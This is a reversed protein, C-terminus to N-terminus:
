VAERAMGALYAAEIERLVGDPDHRLRWPSVSLVTWGAATLANRRQTTAEASTGFGHHEVGDVEVILRAAAWCADPVYRHGGITLPVNVTPAPLVSSRGLVHLLDNEPASWVGGAADRLALRAAPSGRAAGQDLEDSLAEVTCLRRQLAETVVALADRPNALERCADVVARAVPSVALGDVHHGPPLRTTRHVVLAPHPAVRRAHPVLLHVRVDTPAYRFSRVELATLGAIQASEGAYLLAARLQQRRTLAGTTLAYVRPLVRQGRGGPSGLRDVQRRTLRHELCQSRTLLGDQTAALAKLADPIPAVLAITARILANRECGDM